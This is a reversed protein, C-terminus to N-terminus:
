KSDVLDYFRKNFRQYVLRQRQNLEEMRKSIQSEPLGSKYLREKAADLQKAQNYVENAYKRIGLIHKNETLFSARDAIADARLAPDKAASVAVNLSQFTAQVGSIEAYNSKFRGRDVWTQQGGIVRRVLPIDNLGVEKGTVPSLLLSTTRTLFKGLGGTASEFLLELSEPSM